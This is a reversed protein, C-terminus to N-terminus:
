EEVIEADVTEADEIEARRAAAVQALRDALTEIATDAVAAEVQVAGGDAGVLEIRQAGQQGWVDPRSKGLYSLALRGDPASWTREMLIDGNDDRAVKGDPGIVPRESILAGGKMANTVVHVASMEARARAAALRDRFSRYRAADPRIPQDHEAAWDAANAEDIWRYLTTRGIGVSECATTLHNGDEVIEIIRDATDDTLSTPRHGIRPRELTTGTPAQPPKRPTRRAM